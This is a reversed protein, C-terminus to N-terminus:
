TFIISYNPPTTVQGLFFTVGTFETFFLPLTITAQARNLVKCTIKKNKKMLKEVVFFLFINQYSYKNAGSPLARPTRAMFTWKPQPAQERM